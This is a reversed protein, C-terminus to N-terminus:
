LEITQEYIGIAIDGLGRAGDGLVGGNLSGGVTISASLAEKFQHRVTSNIQQQSYRTPYKGAAILTKMAKKSIGPHNLKIIDQTLRKREHRTLGELVQRASKGTSKSLQGLSKTITLSSAGAGLLSLVDLANEAASYWEQSDLWDKQNPSAVELAVRAISNICQGGSAIAATYGIYAVAVGGVNSIPITASSGAVVLWSIVAASCNTVLAISEGVIKSEREDSKLKAAFEQTSISKPKERLIVTPPHSQCFPVFDRLIVSNLHADLYLVRAGNTGPIKDISDCFKKINLSAEIRQRLQKEKLATTTAYPNIGTM